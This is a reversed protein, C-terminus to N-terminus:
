FATRLGLDLDPTGDAYLRLGLDIQAAGFAMQQGLRLYPAAVVRADDVDLLASTLSSSIATVRLGGGLDTAFQWGGWQGGAIARDLGGDVNFTSIHATIPDILPFVGAPFYFESLGWGASVHGSLQGEPGISWRNGLSLGVSQRLQVAVGGSGGSGGPTGLDIGQWVDQTPPTFGGIFSDILGAFAPRNPQLPALGLTVFPEAGALGAWLCLVGALASTKGFPKPRPRM